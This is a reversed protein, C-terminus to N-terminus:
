EAWQNILELAGILGGEGELKAKRIPPQVSFVRPLANLESRIWELPIDRMMSGGLVVIAPSWELILNYIAIALERTERKWISPDDINKPLRGYRKQMAKGGIVDELTTINSGDIGVIQRGIEFGYTSRDIRGDVIRAGNVGTSITIYAMIGNITGAGRYAEGLGVLAADNELLLKAKFGEKFLGRLDLNRWELNPGELFIGKERNITGAIGGAVYQIDNDRVLERAKAMLLAHGGNSTDTPFTIVKDLSNGEGSLAIRTNTGGIDFILNM